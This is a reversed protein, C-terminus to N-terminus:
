GFHALRLRAAASRVIQIRRSIGPHTIALDMMQGPALRRLIREPAALSYGARAIVEVALNDAEVESAKLKKAGLGFEALMRSIGKTQEAHHLMNHSMEHAVVFALEADDGAFNMMRDTVAVYRGDSWANLTRSHLVAFRGGCGQEGTLVLTIPVGARRIGLTAPGRGLSQQLLTVMRETREYTGQKGIADRAFQALDTGNLAVIEDDEVIGALDAASGPVVHLVGFGGTLDFVESLEARDAEDYGGINHLMLGTLMDPAACQAANARSLRYGITELRLGPDAYSAAPQPARAAAGVPTVAQANVTLTLLACALTASLARSRISAHSTTNMMILDQLSCSYIAM